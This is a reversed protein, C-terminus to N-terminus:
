LLIQDPKHIYPLMAKLKKAEEQAASHFFGM